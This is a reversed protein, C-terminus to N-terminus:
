FYVETDREPVSVELDGPVYEAMNPLPRIRHRFSFSDVTVQDTDCNEEEWKAEVKDVSLNYDYTHWYNCPSGYMITAGILQWQENQWRFRHTYNWRIRSGGFHHVVLAGREVDVGQFPDGLMGGADSPLVGGPIEQWLEWQGDVQHYVQLRRPPAEAAPDDASLPEVVLVQEEQGDKNLDGQANGVLKLGAPLNVSLDTSQPPPAAAPPNWEVTAQISDQAVSEESESVSVEACATM